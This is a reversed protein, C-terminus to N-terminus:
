YGVVQWTGDPQRCATGYASEPRGGVYITQQYERCYEGAPSQYTERPIVYGSHGSDPNRWPVTQGSPSYELADYQARQAYARDARDLSRGVESGIIGGILTGAGTAILRGTGHGINSGIFAGTGAGILTGFTQKPGYPDACAGLGVCLVAALGFRAIQM